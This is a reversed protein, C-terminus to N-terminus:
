LYPLQTNFSACDYIMVKRFVLKEPRSPSKYSELLMAVFFFWWPSRQYDLSTVV